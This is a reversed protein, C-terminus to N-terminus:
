LEGTLDELYLFVSGRGSLSVFRFRTGCYLDRGDYEVDEIITVGNEKCFEIFKIKFEKNNM